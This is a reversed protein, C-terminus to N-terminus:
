QVRSLGRGLSSQAVPPPLLPPPRPSGHQGKVRRQRAGIPSPVIQLAEVVDVGGGGGVGADLSAYNHHKQMGSWAGAFRGGDSVSCEACETLEWGLM